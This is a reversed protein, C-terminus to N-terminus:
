HWMGCARYVGIALQWGGHACLFACLGDIRRHAWLRLRIRRPLPTLVRLKGKAMAKEFAAAFAEVQEATLEM